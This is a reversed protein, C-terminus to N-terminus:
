RGERELVVLYVGTSVFRTPRENTWGGALGMPRVNTFVIQWRNRDLAYSGTWLHGGNQWLDFSRPKKTQDLRLDYTSSVERKGGPLVRLTVLKGNEVKWFPTTSQTLWNQHNFEYSVVKWTGRLAQFDDRNTRVARPFPAPAFGVLVALVPVLLLRSRM